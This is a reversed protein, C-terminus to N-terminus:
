LQIFSFLSKNKQISKVQYLPNSNGRFIINLKSSQWVIDKINISILCIDSKIFIKLILCCGGVMSMVNLVLSDWKASVDTVWTLQFHLFFNIFYSTINWLSFFLKIEQALFEQLFCCMYQWKLIHLLFCYMTFAKYFPSCFQFLLRLSFSCLIVYTRVPLSFCTTHNLSM